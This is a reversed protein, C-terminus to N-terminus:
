CDRFVYGDHYTYDSMFLDRAYADYDFYMEIFSEDACEGFIDSFNERLLEEAFAKESDYEGVYRYTYNTISDDGTAEMYAKFQEQEDSDLDLFEKVSDFEDEGFYGNNFYTKPFNQFDQFMLEPDEEDAHLKRCVEIFEDYDYFMDLRLWAGFISGNDYKHYTGCYVAADRDTAIYKKISELANNLTTTESTRM